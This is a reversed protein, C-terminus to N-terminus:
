AASRLKSILQEIRKTTAQDVAGALNCLDKLLDLKNTSAGTKLTSKLVEVQMQLRERALEAPSEIGCLIELRLLNQLLVNRNNELSARYPADKSLLAQLGKEFRNRLIREVDNALKPMAQWQELSAPAADLQDLLARELAMCLRMKDLLANMEREVALRKAADLQAQLASVAAQFRGEIQSEQARPVPGVKGWADKIERLTKAIEAVPEALATELKECLSEKDALHRKRDADAGAAVEKRKAFLADCASRFKQWLAQEIRRELPLSKARQQWREQLVRITDLTNRETPNLALAEAILGERLAVEAQQQQALPKKLLQLSQEFESDLRKKDKRDISGLRQWAQGIQACFTAVAKWDVTSANDDGCQSSAAFQRVEAVIAEAKHLNAQREEGLRKFHAAAPAYALTCAADFREWLDKSSPGASSDLSKWRDRLGGVKKALDTVPLSKAPLEEAARLLEERSINGGWKAWGQLHSLEARLKVLQANQEANLRVGETSRLQKDIEVAARVAGEQLAKEMTEIAESVNSSGSRDKSTVKDAAKPTVIQQPRLAAIRQLLSDFRTQLAQAAADDPLPPLASWASKLKEEKLGTQPDIDEWRQLMDQRAQLAQQIEALSNLVSQFERHQASFETLLNKPLSPAEPAALSQAMEQEIKELAVAVEAHAMGSANSALERLHTVGDIVSRQLQAQAELRQRLLSRADEFAKAIAPSPTGVLQWARDLDAVLNPLLVLEDALKQAAEVYHQAQQERQQEASLADLRAQMLKAVRRDAKRMPPLVRELMVKSHVSEAAILRADAFQCQLIFEVAALEEGSLARAQQLAIEKDKAPAPEVAAERDRTPTPAPSNAPRKFFYDFM